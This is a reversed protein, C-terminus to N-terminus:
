NFIDILNVRKKNKSKIPLYKETSGMQIYFDEPKENPVMVPYISWIRVENRPVVALCVTVNKVRTYTKTFFEYAVYDGNKSIEPITGFDVKESIEKESLNFAALGFCNGSRNWIKLLKNEKQCDSYVCDGTPRAAYDCRMLSGDDEITPFITARNSRGIEDSVYVPSGSIARLVGSLVSSTQDSWWMDFDCYYIENHWIANYVNQILHKAFGNEKNPFFDDSNRSVASGPRSFVNEMDMGMCNIVIGGFNKDISREIARHTIRCAEATPFTEELQSSFASQNDVKLFDVGCESLYSHWTDYFKFAREEDIAPLWLGSKTLELNEKQEEFLESNPEIGTWYGSFAHWVGFHKIGYERKVREIMAKLGEPIKNRDESFSCLKDGKTIMWGDDLIVWQVPINKKKFEDLKSYLKESTVDCYFANWTCFGFGDLIKPFSRERRLPIDLEVATRVFEFCSNVAKYLDEAESQVLFVGNISNLGNNGSSIYVVSPGFECRFNDGCLPQLYYQSDDKRFWLEQTKEPIESFDSIFKPYMWWLKDHFSAVAADPNFSNFSISIAKFAAFGSSKAEIEYCCVGDRRSITLKATFGEAKYSLVQQPGNGSVSELPVSIKRDETLSINLFSCDLIGENVNKSMNEM